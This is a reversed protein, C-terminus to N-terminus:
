ARRYRQRPHPPALFAVFVGAADVAARGSGGRGQGSKAASTRSTLRVLPLWILTKMVASPRVLGAPLSLGLYRPLLGVAAAVLAALLVLGVVLHCAALPLESVMGGLCLVLRFLDCALASFTSVESAM